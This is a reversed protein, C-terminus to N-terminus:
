LGERKKKKESTVYGFRLSAVDAVVAVVVVAVTAVTLWLKARGM